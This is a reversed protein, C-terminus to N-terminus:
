KEWFDNGGGRVASSSSSEPFDASKTIFSRGLTAYSLLCFVLPEGVNHSWMKEQNGSPAETTLTGMRKWMIGVFIDYAGVHDLVVKEPEDAILPPVHTEWWVLELLIDKDPALASITLNLEILSKSLSIESQSCTPRPLSL